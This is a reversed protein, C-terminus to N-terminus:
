LYNRLKERIILLNKEEERIIKNEEDCSFNAYSLNVVAIGNKPLALTKRNHYRERQEARTMGSITTKTEKAHQKESDLNWKPQYLVALKIDEYYADVPLNTKSEGDKHFDGLLFDFKKKRFATQELVIDCLDIVYSEDSQGKPKKKANKNEDDKYPTNPASINLPVFYWYISQEQRKAHAYPILKLNNTKDLERLVKRIPMGNKIDKNFIGDKIFSPMLAKVPIIELENNQKFFEEIVKNIDKIKTSDIM